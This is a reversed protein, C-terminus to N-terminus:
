EASFKGMLEGTSLVHGAMAQELMTHDADEPLNLKQDLAYARFYYRHTGSPPCPGVYGSGGTSNVGSIGGEAMQGEPFKIQVSPMINWVVWHTFTGKPADPDDLILAVSQTDNPFGSITLPPSANQGKCTFKAPITGEQEFEPSTIVLM